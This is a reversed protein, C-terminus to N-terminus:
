YHYERTRYQMSSLKMDRGYLTSAYEVAEGTSRMQANLIGSFAAAKESKRQVYGGPNKRERRLRGYKVVAMVSEVM